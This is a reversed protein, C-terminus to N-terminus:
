DKGKRKKWSKDTDKHSATPKDRGSERKDHKKRAFPKDGHERREGTKKTDQFAPRRSPLTTEDDRLPRINLPCHRVMTRRLAALLEASLPPLEVTSFDDFLDIQGIYRGEIGGENAIAGVIEKPSA